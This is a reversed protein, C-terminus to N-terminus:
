VTVPIHVYTVNNTRLSLGAWKLDNLFAYNYVGLERVRASYTKRSAGSQIFETPKQKAHELQLQNPFTAM